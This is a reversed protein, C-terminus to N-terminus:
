GLAPRAGPTLHPMPVSVPQPAVRRRLRRIEELTQARQFEARHVLHREALLCTWLLAVSLAIASLGQGTIKVVPM